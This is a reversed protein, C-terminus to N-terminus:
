PRIPISDYLECCASDLCYLDIEGDATDAYDGARIVVAVARQEQGDYDILVGSRHRKIQSPRLEKGRNGFWEITKRKSWGFKKPTFQTTM